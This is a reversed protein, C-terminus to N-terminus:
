AVDRVETGIPINFGVPERRLTWHKMKGRPGRLAWSWVEFLGGAALWGRLRPEAM